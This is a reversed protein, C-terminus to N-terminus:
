MLHARSNQSSKWRAASTTTPESKRIPWISSFKRPKKSIGPVIQTRLSEWIDSMHPLMTWNVFGFLDAQDVMGALETKGVRELINKWNVEDLATIKGLM